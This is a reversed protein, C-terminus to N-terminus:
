GVGGESGCGEVDCSDGYNGMMANIITDLTNIVSYADRCLSSICFDDEDEHYPCGACQGSNEPYAAHHLLGNLVKRTKEEINPM